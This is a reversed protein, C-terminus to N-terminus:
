FQPKIQNVVIELIKTKTLQIYEERNDMTVEISAGGPMLEIMEGIKVV